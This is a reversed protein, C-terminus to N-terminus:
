RWPGSLGFDTLHLLTQLLDDAMDNLGIIKNASIYQHQAKKKVM